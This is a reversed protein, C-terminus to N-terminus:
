EQNALLDWVVGMCCGLMSRSLKDVTKGLFFAATSIPGFQMLSPSYNLERSLTGLSNSHTQTYILDFVSHQAHTM